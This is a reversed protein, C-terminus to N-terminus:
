SDRRYWLRLEIDEDDYTTAGESAFVVHSVSDFSENTDQCNIKATAFNDRFDAGALTIVAQVNQAQALTLSADEITISPNTDFFIISMDEAFPTGLSVIICVKVITGTGSLTIAKSAGLNTTAIQTEASGDFLVFTDILITAGAPWTLQVGEATVALISYDKDGATLAELDANEVGLVFVGLDKSIHASDEKYVALENVQLGPGSMANSNVALTAVDGNTDDLRVRLDSMGRLDVLFDVDLSSSLAIAAASSKANTLDYYTAAIWTTADDSSVEIVVTATGTLSAGVALHISAFSMGDVAAVTGNADDDSSTLTTSQHATSTVALASAATVVDVQVNGSTDVAMNQVDTGDDGGMLVPRPLSGSAEREVGQVELGGGGSIQSQAVTWPGVVGLATAVTLYGLYKRLFKM